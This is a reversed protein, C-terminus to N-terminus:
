KVDSHLTAIFVPLTGMCLALAKGTKMAVKCLSTFYSLLLKASAFDASQM